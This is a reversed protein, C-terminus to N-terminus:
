PHPVPALLPAIQAAVADAGEATLIVTALDASPLHTLSGLASSAVLPVPGVVVTRTCNSPIEVSADDAILSRMDVRWRHHDDPGAIGHGLFEEVGERDSLPGLAHHQRWHRRHELRDPFAIGLVDRFPDSGTGVVGVTMVVRDPLRSASEAALRAGFGHGVALVHDIDLQDLLREIDRVHDGLGTSSPLRWASGRGRLDPAIIATSPPLRRMVLDWSRANTARDHLLLVGASSSRVPGRSWVLTEGGDLTVEIFRRDDVRDRVGHGYRRRDCRCCFHRPAAGASREGSASRRLM